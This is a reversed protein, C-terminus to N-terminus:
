TIGGGQSKYGLGSPMIGRVQGERIKVFFFNLIWGVVIISVETVVITYFISSGLEANSATEPTQFFLGTFFLALMVYVALACARQPLTDNSNQDVFFVSLWQHRKM